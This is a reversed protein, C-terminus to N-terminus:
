PSRLLGVEALYRRTGPHLRDPSPAALVTNAATTERAQPLRAGLASEGRHLARTVRYAVEDPLTPRALIFSWSGVSVLDATQGPYSNAPVMLLKLFPHKAQIRRIGDLDPVIFRAGGPAKAVATFGPWGLGGGWLAAVRGDLVMAPGDGARELFVAKFDRDRDLGLGDLVYRALIILGSGQAGFAVPQGVLDQIRTAKADARVVFMGATSYMAAVLRLAAPARGIGAWAEHAVEGQVLALDLTGAELMPVNETSGKTNQPKMELSPDVENVTDAVAQGYVPFGGGPTATGLTVVTRVDSMAAHAGRTDAGPRAARRHARGPRHGRPWQRPRLPHRRCLPAPGRLDRSGRRPRSRLRRRGGERGRRARRSRRPRAPARAAGDDQAGGSRAVPHAGRARLARARPPLDRLEASPAQGPGARRRRRALLRRLRDDGRSARPRLPPRGRRAPLPDRLGRGREDVLIDMAADLPDIRWDRAIDDLRRGEAEPRSPSSAIMIDHWDLGRALIPSGGTMDQRIRDRAAGDGLRELMAEIGGELVWDPLLTRLTTSSATYPYVDAMVDQGGEARAIDILSLASEVKGWNPRGAAKIHSVQVPVNGERGVRIAEGVAALLTAGEGRIHSAYFGGHAARRAVAIIEETEAYSGPAYILGTALGYAGSAMADDMLREMTVLERATPPRRAFGMAALRLTGHGVLQVVNVAVGEDRYGRLYDAMSRWSFDMGPPLSLAFGRMEERFEDSVPAPSFGCNGVVETTVGQRIKSEARRNGWLRWDSHTHVDIFGPTVTLGAADITRGAPERGLDGVATITDGTIGLDARVAAAGTGDVVQGGVIKLDLM